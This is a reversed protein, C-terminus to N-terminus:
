STYIINFRHIFNDGTLEDVTKGGATITVKATENGLAPAKLM